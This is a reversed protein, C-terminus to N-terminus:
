TLPIFRFTYFSSTGRIMPFNNIYLYNPSNQLRANALVFHSM